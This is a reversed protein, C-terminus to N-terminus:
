GTRRARDRWQDAAGPRRGAPRDGRHAVKQAHEVARRVAIVDDVLLDEGSGELGASREGSYGSRKLDISEATAGAKASPCACMRSQSSRSAMESSANQTRRSASERASRLILPHTCAM